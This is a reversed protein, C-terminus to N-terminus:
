IWLTAVCACKALLHGHTRVSEICRVTRATWNFESVTLRQRSGDALFLAIYDTFDDGAFTFDDGAVLLIIPIIHGISSGLLGCELSHAATRSGRDLRRGGLPPVATGTRRQISFKIRRYAVFCEDDIRYRLKCIFYDFM